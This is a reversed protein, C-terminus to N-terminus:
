YKLIIKLSFKGKKIEKKYFVEKIISKLLENKKENTLTDNYNELVNEIIPLAKKKCNVSNLTNNKSLEIKKDNLDKIRNNLITTREIYKQKTYTGDEVLECAKDLQKQVKDIEENIINYTYKKEKEEQLAEKEYNNIFIVYDQYISKLGKIIENEVLEIDSGINHCYPTKCILLNNITNNKNDQFTLLSKDFEDTQINLLEKLKPWLDPSPLTSKKYNSLFIHSIVDRTMHTKLAIDNISLKSIDKKERLLKTLKEKDVEYTRVKKITEKKYNKKKFMNHNCIECKVLGVLPSTIIDTSKSFFNYNKLKSEIKEKEEMTFIAQFRGQVEICDKNIPRSKEIKKNVLSKVTKRRDWTVLGYKTKNELINKIM